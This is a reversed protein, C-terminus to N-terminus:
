NRYRVESSPVGGILLEAIAAQATEVRQVVDADMLSRRRLAGDTVLAAIVVDALDGPAKARAALEALASAGPGPRSSCLAFIMRTMSEALAAVDSGERVTDVVAEVRAERYLKEPALEEVLRVRGIGRVLINYRGDSLKEHRVVHGAGFVREVRPREDYESEWGPALQVIGIPRGDELVDRIMARYRPEFVHLPVMEYPLLIANPLPFLPMRDLAHELGLLEAM